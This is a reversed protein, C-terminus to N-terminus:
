TDAKKGGTQNNWCGRSGLQAYPADTIAARGFFLFFTGDHDGPVVSESGAVLGQDEIQKATIRSYEQDAGFLGVRRRTRFVCWGAFVTLVCVHNLDSPLCEGGFLGFATLGQSPENLLNIAEIGFHKTVPGTARIKQFGRFQGGLSAGVQLLSPILADNRQMFDHVLCRPMFGNMAQEPHVLRRLLQRLRDCRWSLHESIFDAKGLWSM